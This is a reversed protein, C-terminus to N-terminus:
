PPGQSEAAQGRDREAYRSLDMSQEWLQKTAAADISM